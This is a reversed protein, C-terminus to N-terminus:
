ACPQFCLGFRLTRCTRHRPHCRRRACCGFHNRHSCTCASLWSAGTTRNPPRLRELEYPATGHRCVYICVHAMCLYMRSCKCAHMCVYPGLHSRLQMSSAIDHDPSSAFVLASHGARGTVWFVVAVAAFLKRYVLHLFDATLSPSDFLVVLDPYVEHFPFTVWFFLFPCPLWLCVQIVAWRNQSRPEPATTFFSLPILWVNWICLRAFACILRVLLLFSSSYSSPKLGWHCHNRWKLLFLPGVVEFPNRSIIAVANAQQCVNDLKIKLIILNSRRVLYVVCATFM